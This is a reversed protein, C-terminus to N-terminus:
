RIARHPMSFSTGKSAMLFLRGRSRTQFHPISAKPTSAPKAPSPKRTHFRSAHDNAEASLSAAPRASATPEPEAQVLANILALQARFPPGAQASGRVPCRNDYEEEGSGPEYLWGKSVNLITAAEEADMLRDAREDHETVKLAAESKKGVAIRIVLFAEGLLTSLKTQENMLMESNLKREKKQYGIIM